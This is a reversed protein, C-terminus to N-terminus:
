RATEDKSWGYITEELQVWIIVGWFYKDVGLSCKKSVKKM